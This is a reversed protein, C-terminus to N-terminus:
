IEKITFVRGIMEEQKLTKKQNIDFSPTKVERREIKAKMGFWGTNTNKKGEEMGEERGAYSGSRSKKRARLLLQAPLETALYALKRM